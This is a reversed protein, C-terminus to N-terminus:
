DAKGYGSHSPAQVPWDDFQDQALPRWQKRTSGGTQDGGDPEYRDGQHAALTSLPSVPLDSVGERGRILRLGVMTHCAVYSGIEPRREILSQDRRPGQICLYGSEELVHFLCAGCLERLGSFTRLSSWRQVYPHTGDLTEPFVPSGIV